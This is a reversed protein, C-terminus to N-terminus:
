RLYRGKEIKVSTRNSEKNRAASSSTSSEGGRLAKLGMDISMSVDETIAKARFINYM